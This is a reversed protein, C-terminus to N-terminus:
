SCRSMRRSVIAAILMSVGSGVILAGPSPEPVATANVVQITFGASGVVDMANGDAGGLITFTGSYSGTAFPSPEQLTFLDITSTSASASLFLPADTFFPMLDEDAPTFAGALNLGASNLFIVFSATNSLTGSFTVGSGEPAQLLTSTLDVTIPSAKCIPLLFVFAALGLKPIKSCTMTM